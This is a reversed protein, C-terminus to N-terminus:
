NNVLLKSSKQESAHEGQKMPSNQEKLGTQSKATESAALKDM